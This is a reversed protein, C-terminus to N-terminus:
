HLQDNPIVENSNINFVFHHNQPVMSVKRHEVTLETPAEKGEEQFTFTVLKPGYPVPGQPTSHRNQWVAVGLVKLRTVGDIILEATTKIAAM